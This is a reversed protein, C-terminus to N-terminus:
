LNLPCLARLCALLLTLRRLRLLLLLLRFRLRILLCQMPTQPPTPTQLLELNRLHMQILRQRRLSKQAM